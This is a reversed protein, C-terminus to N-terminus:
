NWETPKQIDTTKSRIINDPFQANRLHHNGIHKLFSATEVLSNAANSVPSLIGVTKGVEETVIRIPEVLDTDNTIVAAVDFKDLFADRVLHTGLNVDSGKEETKIIRVVDPWPMFSLKNGEPPTWLKAYAKNIQFKGFHTAIEPITALASIYVQQNRPGQPNLRESVRATYYNVGVIVNQTNLVEAALQKLNLWKFHPQKKLM